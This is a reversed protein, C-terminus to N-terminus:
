PRDEELHAEPLPYRTLNPIVKRVGGRPNPVDGKRRPILHFHLHFVTQGAMEGANIGINFGDCGYTEKIHRRCRSILDFIAAIEDDRAEDVDPIHRKTIILTHGPSVPFHDLFAAALENEFLINEQNLHCFPCTL